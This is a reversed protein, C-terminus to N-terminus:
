RKGNNGLMEKLQRLLFNYGECYGAYFDRDASWNILEKDGEDTRLTVNMPAGPLLGSCTEADFKTLNMKMEETERIFIELKDNKKKEPMDVKENAQDAAMSSKFDCLLCEPTDAGEGREFQKGCSACIKKMKLGKDHVKNEAECPVDFGCQRLEQDMDEVKGGLARNITAKAIELKRAENM